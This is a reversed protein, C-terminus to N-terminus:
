IVYGVVVGLVWLVVLVSIVAFDILEPLAALVEAVTM